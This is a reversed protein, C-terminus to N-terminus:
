FVDESEDEDNETNRFQASGMESLFIGGTSCRELTCRSRSNVGNLFPGEKSEQFPDTIESGDVDPPSDGVGKTDPIRPM